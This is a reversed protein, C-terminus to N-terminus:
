RYLSKIQGWSTRKVPVTACNAGAGGQWTAFDRGGSPTGSISHDGVGVPQTLLVWNIQFCAPTLCGACADGGVTKLFNVKVHYIYYETGATMPGAALNSVASVTRFRATNLLSGLWQYSPTTNSAGWDYGFGGLPFGVMNFYDNCTPGPQNYDVSVSTGRCSGTSVAQWWAPVTTDAFIVDLTAQEGTVATLGADAVTSFYLNVEGTNSSCANTLDATGAAGCDGWSLNNGATQASAISAFAALSLTLIMLSRMRKM